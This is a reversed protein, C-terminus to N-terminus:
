GKDEASIQVVLEVIRGKLKANRIRPFAQNAGRWVGRHVGATELRGGLGLNLIVVGVIARRRGLSFAGTVWLCVWPGDVGVDAGTFGL